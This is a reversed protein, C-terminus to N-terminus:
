RQLTEWHEVAFVHCLNELMQLHYTEAFHLFNCVVAPTVQRSLGIEIVKCLSTLQFRDAAVLLELPDLVCTSTSACASSHLPPVPFSPLLSANDCPLPTDPDLSPHHPKGVEPPSPNFSNRHKKSGNSTGSSNSFSRELTADVMDDGGGPTNLQLHSLREEERREDEDLSSSSAAAGSESCRKVGRASSSTSSAGSSPQAGAASGGGNAHSGGASVPIVFELDGCYLFYVITRFIIYRVGEVRIMGLQELERDRMRSTLATYLMQCRSVVILKPVSLVRGEVLFHVFSNSPLPTTRSASSDDVPFLAREHELNFRICSEVSSVGSAVLSASSASATGPLLDRACPESAAAAAADFGQVVPQAYAMPQARRFRRQMDQWLCGSEVINVIPEASPLVAPRTYERRWTLTAFDFVDLWAVANHNLFRGALIVL